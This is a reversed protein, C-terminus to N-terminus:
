RRSRAKMSERDQHIKLREAHNKVYTEDIFNFKSVFELRDEVKYVDMLANIDSLTIKSINGSFGM